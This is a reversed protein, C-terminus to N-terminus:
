VSDVMSDVYKHLSDFYEDTYEDARPMEPFVPTTVNHTDDILGHYYAEEPSMGCDIHVFGEVVTEFKKMKNNRDHNNLYDLYEASSARYLVHGYPDMDMFVVRVITIILLLVGLLAVYDLPNQIRSTLDDLVRIKKFKM